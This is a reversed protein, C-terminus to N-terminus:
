FYGEQGPPLTAGDALLLFCPASCLCPESCMHRIRRAAPGALCRWLRIAAGLEGAVGPGEPSLGESGGRLLLQSDQFCSGSPVISCALIPLHWSRRQSAQARGQELCWVEFSPTEAARSAQLAPDPLSASADRGRHGLM